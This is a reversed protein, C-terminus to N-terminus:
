FNETSSVLTLPGDDLIILQELKSTIFLLIFPSEQDRGGKVFCKSYSVFDLPAYPSLFHICPCDLLSLPSDFGYNIVNWWVYHSFIGYLLSFSHVCFLFSLIKLKTKLQVYECPVFVPGTCYLVRPYWDVWFSYPSTWFTWM